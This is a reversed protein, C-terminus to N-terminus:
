LTMGFTTFFRSVRVVAELDKVANLIVNHKKQIIGERRRGGWKGALLLFYTGVQM